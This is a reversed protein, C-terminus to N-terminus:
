RLRKLELELRHIRSMEEGLQETLINTDQNSNINKMTEMEALISQPTCLIMFNEAIIRSIIFAEIVIKFDVWYLFSEGFAKRNM